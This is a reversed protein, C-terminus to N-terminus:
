PLARQRKKIPRPMGEMGRTSTAGGWWEGDRRGGGGKSPKECIICLTLSIHVIILIQNEFCFHPFKSQQSFKNHSVFSIFFQWM